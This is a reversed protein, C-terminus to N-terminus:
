GHKGLQTNKTNSNTIKLTAQTHHIYSQTHPDTIPQTIRTITYSRNQKDTAHNYPMYIQAKIKNVSLRTRYEPCGLWTASHPGSCDPRPPPASCGEKRSGEGWCRPCTQTTQIHFQQEIYESVFSHNSRRQERTHNTSHHPPCTKM